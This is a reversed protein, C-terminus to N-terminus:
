APMVFSNQLVHGVAAWLQVPISVERLRQRAPNSGETGTRSPQPRSQNCQWPRQRPTVPFRLPHRRYAIRPNSLGTL